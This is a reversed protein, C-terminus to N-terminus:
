NVNRGGRVHVNKERDGVQYDIERDFTDRPM